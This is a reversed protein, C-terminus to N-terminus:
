QRDGSKGHPLKESITFAASKNLRAEKRFHLDHFVIEGDENVALHEQQIMHQKEIECIDCYVVRYTVNIEAGTRKWSGFCVTQSDGYSIEMKDDTQNISGQVIGFRGDRFFYLVETTTWKQNKHFDDQTWNVKSVIWAGPVDKAKTQGFCVSAALVLLVALLQKM